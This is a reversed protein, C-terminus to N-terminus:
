QLAFICVKIEIVQSIIFLHFFRAKYNRLIYRSMAPQFTPYIRRQVTVAYFWATVPVSHIAAITRAKWFEIM